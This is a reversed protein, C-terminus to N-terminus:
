LRAFVKQKLARALSNEIDEVQMILTPDINSLEIESGGIYFYGFGDVRTEGILDDSDPFDADYLRIVQVFPAGSKFHIEREHRRRKSLKASASQSM